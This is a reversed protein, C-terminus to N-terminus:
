FSKNQELSKKLLIKKKHIKVKFNSHKEINKCM